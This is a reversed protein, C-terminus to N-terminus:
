AGSGGLSLLKTLYQEWTDIAERMEPLYRYLDYTKEMDTRASIHNVLREAIHPAVGLKGLNSRFTRRLDHLTWGTVGCLKDLAAKGKSWGSFPRDPKDKAPFLLGDAAHADLVGKALAGIPLTHENHNKTISGPLTLTEDQIWSGHLAATETERQGLLILLKVIAAFARPLKNTAEGSSAVAADRAAPELSCALWISKLEVDSLIRTRSPRSHPSLGIAPNDTIYRKKQAWTFFTKSCSLRHNFESPPLKKLKRSLDDHTIDALQCKFNLLNLHRKHDAM